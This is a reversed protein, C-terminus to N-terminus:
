GDSSSSAPGMSFVGSRLFGTRGGGELAKTFLLFSSSAASSRVSAMLLTEVAESSDSGVRVMARTLGALRGGGEGKLSEMFDGAFRDSATWSADEELAWGPPLDVPAVGKLADSRWDGALRGGGEARFDMAEDVRARDSGCPAAVGENLLERRWDGAFRPGMDAM